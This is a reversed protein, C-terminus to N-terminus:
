GKRSRKRAGTTPGSKAPSKKARAALPSEPAAPTSPRQPATAEHITQRLQDLKANVKAKAAKMTSQTENIANTLLDCARGIRHPYVGDKLEIGKSKLFDGLSQYLEDKKITKMM